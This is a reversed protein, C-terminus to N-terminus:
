CPFTKLHIYARANEHIGQRAVFPFTSILNLIGNNVVFVKITIPAQVIFCKVATIFDTGYYALTNALTL